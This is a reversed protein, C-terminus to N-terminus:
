VRRTFMIGEDCESRHACYHCLWSPEADVFGTELGTEIISKREQVFATVEDTDKKEIEILATGLHADKQPALCNPCVLEGNHVEVVVKCKRCKSPGSLDIYQLYLKEVEQGTGELMWAYINVQWEHEGYPLNAIKLWRTTKFDVVTKQQPYYLDVTGVIGDRSVKMESIAEGDEQELVAHTLTGLVRALMTHVQEPVPKTKTLVTRKPCGLLDTTHIGARDSEDFMKQLLAFDYGCPAPRSEIAHALCAEKTWIQRDIPCIVRDM